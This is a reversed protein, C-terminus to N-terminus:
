AVWCSVPQRPLYQAAGATEVAHAIASNLVVASVSQLSSGCESGGHTSRATTAGRMSHLEGCESGHPSAARLQECPVSGMVSHWGHSAAAASPPTSPLAAPAGASAAQGAASRSVIEFDLDSSSAGNAVAETGFRHVLASRPTLAAAAAQQAHAAPPGDKAHM